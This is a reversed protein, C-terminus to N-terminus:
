REGRRTSPTSPTSPRNLFEDVHLRIHSYIDNRGDVVTLMTLLCDSKGKELCKVHQRNRSSINVRQRNSDTLMARNSRHTATLQAVRCNGVTLLHEVRRLNRPM